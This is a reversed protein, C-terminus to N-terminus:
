KVKNQKPNKGIKHPIPLNLAMVRCMFGETKKQRQLKEEDNKNRALSM